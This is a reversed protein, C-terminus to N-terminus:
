QYVLRLVKSLLNSRMAQKNFAKKFNKIYKKNQSKSTANNKMIWLPNLQLLTDRENQTAAQIVDERQVEVLNNVFLKGIVLVSM